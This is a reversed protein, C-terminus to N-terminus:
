KSINGIYIKLGVVTLNKYLSLIPGGVAEEMPHNQSSRQGPWTCVVCHGSQMVRDVPRQRLHDSRRLISPHGTSKTQLFCPLTQSLKFMDHWKEDDVTYIYLYLTFYTIIIAVAMEINLTCHISKFEVGEKKKKDCRKLVIEKCTEQSSTLVLIFLQFLQANTWIGHNNTNAAAAIVAETGRQKSNRPSNEVTPPVVLLRLWKTLSALHRYFFVVFVVELHEWASTSSRTAIKMSKKKAVEKPNFNPSFFKPVPIARHELWATIALPPCWPRSNALLNAAVWPRTALLLNAQGSRVPACSPGVHWGSSAKLAAFHCSAWHMCYFYHQCKTLKGSTKRRKNISEWVIVCDNQRLALVIYVDVHLM